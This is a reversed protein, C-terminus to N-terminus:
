SGKGQREGVTGIERAVEAIAMVEAELERRLTEEFRAAPTEPLPRRLALGASDLTAEIATLRLACRERSQEMEDLLALARRKEAVAAEAAARATPDMLRARDRELRQVEAQLSLHDVRSRADELARIQRALTWAGAEVSRLGEELRPNRRSGLAARAARQKGRIRELQLQLEWSLGRLAMRRRLVWGMGGMLLAAPASVEAVLPWLGAPPSLVRLVMEGTLAGRVESPPILFEDVFRDVDVRVGVSQGELRWEAPVRFEYRHRAIDEGELLPARPSWQLYSHPQTFAGDPGTAYLADFQAGTYRFTFAGELVIRAGMEGLPPILLRDGNPQLRTVALVLDM